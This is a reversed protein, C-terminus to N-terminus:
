STGAQPGTEAEALARLQGHADDEVLGGHYTIIREIRPLAALKRLSEKALAMDPTAREMPGNLRGNESTLADGSILTGSRELYLSIHGPTHGPTHVVRVGGALDLVEGDEVFQDVPAHAIRDYMEKMGPNADLREQSPYKYLPQSGDIYPAEVSHALIAAGSRKKVDALSGIHDIDQHTVVIRRLTEIPFGEAALAEAVADVHGPMSTDVLTPGHAADPILVLNLVMSGLPGTFTVPLLHVDDHIKM